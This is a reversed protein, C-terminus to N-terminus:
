RGLGSESRGVASMDVATPERLRLARRRMMARGRLSLGSVPAAAGVEIAVRRLPMVTSKTEDGPLTFTGPTAVGGVDGITAEGGMVEINVSQNIDLVEPSFGGNLITLTGDAPVAALGEALTNFPNTETGAESGTYGFDVYVQGSVGIFLGVGITLPNEDADNSFITLQGNYTGPDFGTADVSVTVQQLGQGAITAFSPAVSLWAPTGVTLRQYFNYGSDVLAGTFVQPLPNTYGFGMIVSGFSTPAVASFDGLLQIAESTWGTAIAYYKGATLPFNIEGSGYFAAGIGDVAGTLSLVETKAFGSGVGDMEYIIFTLNAMGEFSLATEIQQLLTNSTAQFVNGVYINSVPNFILADSGVFDTSLGEVSADILVDLDQGGADATNLVDLTQNATGGTPMSFSMSTQSVDIDALVNVATQSYTFSMNGGTQRINFLTNGTSFVVGGQYTDTSPVTEPGIVTAGFEQYVDGADGRNNGKELDYNGDAQLLAVRYHNGNEPWGTQGPFGQTNYGANEDIHFIALGGQPMDAEFGLPQRNELLLYEGDPFNASIKLATPTGHYTPLAYNGPTDLDIPTLWGLQMKSWSCFQPPYLQSGDFGWSNAMLGWSGIGDGAGADTDYLDPLGFFHGTEHCIVGIRGIASGSTSWLGPNIHYNSVTVGEASSWGPFIAYKHSWIRSTSPAGDADTGGFEAGYGSHVFAIADIVGDSVTDFDNFNVTSDIANLAYLLAEQVKSGGLGSVGNAYYAETQPLDVWAVVTSLLTMQGYSAETYYDRVSGTPAYTPDGGVSNFLTDYNAPTPLTRTAHDSFRMLVVLNRKVGTIPDMLLPGDESESAEAGDNAHLHSQARIERSPLIRRTLGARAPNDRGVRLATPVVRGTANREGYVFEKQASQVVTFGDLDELWHFHEDGHIRLTVTSGDPQKEVFPEPSAQVAVGVRPFALAAFLLLACVSWIGRRTKLAGVHSARDTREQLTGPMTRDEEQRTGLSGPAICEGHPLPRPTRILRLM